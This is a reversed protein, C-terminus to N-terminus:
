LDERHLRALPLFFFPAILSEGDRAEEPFGISFLPAFCCCPSRNGESSGADSELLADALSGLFFFQDVVASAYSFFNFLLVPFLLL